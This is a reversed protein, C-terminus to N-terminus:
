ETGASDSEAKRSQLDAIAQGLREIGVRIQDEDNFAFCLRVHDASHGDVSFIDGPKFVVGRERALPGLAEATMGAPLRLWLFYGGHPEQFECEAFAPARLSEAMAAARAGFTDVIDGLYRDLLGLELVSRVLSSGIPNTGGASQLTPNTVLHELLDRRAHIWGVRLGPALIKSFTGLSVVRGGGVYASYPPPPTVGYSLLQYVEDAVLYFDYREALAVLAERRERSQTLGTPNHHSPITYVLRPRHQQVLAELAAPELGDHDMPAPIVTLGHSRMVDPAAYYTDEEVIITQGPRALMTCAIDLGGSIGAAIMLEEAPVEFGYHRTLFASLERRLGPDGWEDGYQLFYPDGQSFRHQAAQEFVAHPLLSDAPYGLALNVVQTRPLTASTM